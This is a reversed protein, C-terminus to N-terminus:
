RQYEQARYHSQLTNKFFGTYQQIREFDSQNEASWGDLHYYLVDWSAGEKLQHRETAIGIVTKNDRILGRALICRLGLEASRYERDIEKNTAQFVYTVGCLSSFLRAFEGDKSKTLFNAFIESIARRSFRDEKAMIRICKEFEDLTHTTILENERYYISLQEILADWIYSQKELEKKTQYEKSDRFKQWIGTTLVLLDIGSPFKRNNSLYYALLDEEGGEFLLQKGSTVFEEKNKLYEVFDTITDLESMVIKLSHEDFTHVFGTGFDGFQIAAKGQSGFAVAIRFIRRKGKHPFVIAQEGISTIVNSADSIWREAGYIQAVSDEIAKKRWRKYGIEFNDTDKFQIEKVSIIIISPDCVILIDCLEKDKKGKPNAYSWLSLFSHDCLQKVYEESPTM